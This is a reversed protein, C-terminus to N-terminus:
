ELSFMHNIYKNYDIKFNNSIKLGSQNEEM